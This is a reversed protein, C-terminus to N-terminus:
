RNSNLTCNSKAFNATSPEEGLNCTVDFAAGGTEHNLDLSRSSISLFREGGMADTTYRQIVVINAPVRGFLGPKTEVADFSFRGEADATVTDFAQKGQYRYERTVQAGAAPRGDAGILQGQMPSCVYLKSSSM